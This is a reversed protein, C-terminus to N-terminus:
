RLDGSEWLLVMRLATAGRAQSGLPKWQGLRGEPLEPGAPARIRLYASLQGWAWSIHGSQITSPPLTVHSHLWDRSRQGGKPTLLSQPLQPQQPPPCLLILLAGTLVASFCPRDKLLFPSPRMGWCPGQFM